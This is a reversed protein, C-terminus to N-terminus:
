RLFKRSLENFTMKFILPRGHPCTTYNNTNFLLNLLYNMDQVSLKDGAKIAQKCSLLAIPADKTKSVGSVCLDVLINKFENTYNRRTASLPISKLYIDSGNIDFDYGYASITNKHEDLGELEDDTLSIKHKEHLIITPTQKTNDNHNHKEFLIREHAAHQDVFITSKDALEAVIYSNAIQGIVTFDNINEDITEEFNDTEQKDNSIFQEVNFNTEYDDVVVKYDDNRKTGINDHLKEDITFSYDINFKDEKVMNNEFISEHIINKDLESHEKKYGYTIENENISIAKTTAAKILSFIEAQNDFRVELKAPHVNADILEPNIRIDIVTNPHRNDPVLRHYAQSVAVIFSAEKILRGNVGVIIGDRKLRDSIEAPTTTSTVTIDGINAVGTVFAKGSFVKSARMAVDDNKTVSYVLKTNVYLEISINPNILSFQKVLKVVEGELKKFSKLFKRRAPLAEFLNVVEVMTGNIALSPKVESIEGFKSKIEYTESNKGSRLTFLSVTSIAALAEGRFGFTSASYVDEVNIAKSTAFRELALSLEDKDIGSGNDTVKILTLGGDIIEVIINDASADVSNEILEKVVNFPREVVEGAAIKSAIDPSLKKISAM